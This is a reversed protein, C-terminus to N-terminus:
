KKFLTQVNDWQALNELREYLVGAEPMDAQTGGQRQWVDLCDMFKVRQDDDSLPLQAHGRAYRVEGSELVRGDTTEIEVTDYLAFASDQPDAKDVTVLEVKRYLEHMAPENVFDDDLEALGVKRRTLASAIAFQASFKAELATVPAANRLMSIQPRGLGVTVRRVQEPDLNAETALDITADIVRHGSYCVPYKKISLGTDLIRPPRGVPLPSTRDVRGAPSIAALFGAHHELADAAATLGLTALEVAEFALGGVRGSHMPKTMTGFNAVLGSALSASIALARTVVEADLGRLHCVAATAAVTGFVATPHWGKIHYPDSERSALEAWVEYGVVYARLCDDGSAGQAHAQALIAPALATSPHGSLAVDDYDLAHSAAGNVFAALAVPLMTGSCWDPALEGGQGARKQAYAQAIRTVPENVGAMAAAYADVMGTRALAAAKQYDSGFQPQVVYAALAQTLGLSSVPAQKGANEGPSSTM